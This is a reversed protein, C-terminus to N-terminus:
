ERVEHNGRNLYVAEPRWCKLALLVLLVECSHPGRDVFDGNFILVNSPFQPLGTQALVTLLDDLQGHLDGVVVARQCEAPVRVINPLPSLLRRAHALIRLFDGISPLAASATSISADARAFYNLLDVVFRESVADAGRGCLKPAALRASTSSSSSSSSSSPSDSSSSDASPAVAVASSSAASAPSSSSSSSSAAAPQVNSGSQHASGTASDAASAAGDRDSASEPGDAGGSPSPPPPSSANRNTDMDVDYADSNADAASSSSSSSPSSLAWDISLENMASELKQARDQTNHGQARYADQLRHMLVATPPAAALFFLDLKRSIIQICVILALCLSPPFSLSLSICISSVYLFLVDVAVARRCFCVRRSFSSLSMACTWRWGCKGIARRANWSAIITGVSPASFSPPRARMIPPVRHGGIAGIIRMRMRVRVRMRAKAQMPM